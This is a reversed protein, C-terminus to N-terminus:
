TPANPGAGGTVFKALAQEFAFRGGVGFLIRLLGTPLGGGLVYGVGAVVALTTYPQRELRQRLLAEWGHTVERMTGALAVVDQRVRKSQALLERASAMGASGNGRGSAETENM